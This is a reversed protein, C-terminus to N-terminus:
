GAKRITVTEKGRPIEKKRLDRPEKQKGSLEKKSAPVKKCSGKEGPRRNFRSRPYVKGRNKKKGAKGRRGGVFGINWKMPTSCVVRASARKVKKKPTREMGLAVRGHESCVCTKERIRLKQTKQSKKKRAGGGNSSAEERESPGRWLM